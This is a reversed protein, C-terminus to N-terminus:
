AATVTESEGPDAVNERDLLDVLARYVLEARSRVEREALLDLRRDTADDITTEARATRRIEYRRVRRTAAM